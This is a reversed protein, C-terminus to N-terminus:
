RTAALQARMGSELQQARMRQEAERLEPTFETGFDDIEYMPRIEVEVEPGCPYPNRRAWAIADTMSPVRIMWYGAILEKIETFPGDIVSPKGGKFQIRAGHATSRLGDAALLVGKKAEVANHADLRDLKDQSVPAEAELDPSSRLLVAFRKGPADAAPDPHVEACGGPCGSQRIEITVDGDGDEAPWRKMWEVMDDLSAAEYAALGAVLEKTEAFPGDTVTAHGGSLRLRVGEVTPRLGEGALMVGADVLEQNYRGMATMLAESPMAGQETSPDAKRLVIFKM